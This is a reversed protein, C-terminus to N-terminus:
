TAHSTRGPIEAASCGLHLTIRGPDPRVRSGEEIVGDPPWTIGPCECRAREVLLRYFASSRIFGHPEIEVNVVRRAGLHALLIALGFERGSGIELVDGGPIRDGMTARRVRFRDLVEQVIREDDPTHRLDSVWRAIRYAPRFSAITNLLVQKPEVRM